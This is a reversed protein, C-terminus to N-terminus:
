CTYRTKGHFHHNEMTVTHQIVLPKKQRRVVEPSAGLLLRIDGVRPFFFHNLVESARWFHDRAM